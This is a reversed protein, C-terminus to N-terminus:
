DTTKLEKEIYDAIEEFTAGDDNMEILAEIRMEDYGICDEVEIYIQNTSEELGRGNNYVNEAIEESTAVGSIVALVGL